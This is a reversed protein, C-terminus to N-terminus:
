LHLRYQRLLNGAATPLQRVSDAPNEYFGAATLLIAAKIAAPVKQASEYGATFRITVADPRSYVAPITELEIYAPESFLSKYFGTSDITRTVNNQDFYSVSVIESVPSKGIVIRKSFAPLIMEYTAPMLQRSTFREADDVAAALLITLNADKANHTIGIHDKLETLSVPMEIPSEILKLIM